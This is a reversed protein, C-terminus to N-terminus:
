FLKQQKVAADDKKTPAPLSRAGVLFNEYLGREKDGPPLVDVISQALRQMRDAGGPPLATALFDALDQREGAAWLNAARHLVDILPALTGTAAPEGLGKVKKRDLPGKLSVKDGKKNLVGKEAVLADFEVGMSQAMHIAEGAEVDATGFAWRWIVYFRSAHDVNGAAEGHVIRQLAYDAVIGRVRDLLEAVTVEDGSLKMVRRFRGFVEVAPGIASMFFDAGRIGQSWFYDLREHLRQELAPEVDDMFGDESGTRKRCVILVSSALAASDQGRLRAGMETDLPWSATVVFGASLLSSIATEWASTAKHAFMVGLIGDDALLSRCRTFSETLLEEFREKTKYSYKPNREALQVAEDRKPTLETAFDDPFIDRLCLRAWVYFFDSLDAYPVADYYPPDTIILDFVGDDALRTASGRLLKAPRSITAAHLIVRRIWDYAGDWSGAAGAFADIESYDWVMGLAQRAFTNAVFEGRSVWRCIASNYDAARGLMLTLYAAMADAYEPDVNSEARMEQNSAAIEEALTVLLLLQRPNFLDRWRRIGYVHVNFISRLYPLEQDPIRAPDAKETAILLKRARAFAADDAPTPARYEKNRGRDSEVVCVIREGFGDTEAVKRLDSGGTIAGCYPCEVKDRSITGNGPDDTSLLTGVQVDFDKSQRDYEFRMVLKASQSLWTQKYIPITGRCAPNRCAITRVWIYAGARKNTDGSYCGALKAEVRLAIRKCWHDLDLALAEGRVLGGITNPSDAFVPAELGGFKQPYLLTCRQILHAIPNLDNSVVDLGLRLGELPIAGGGGFPDLLRLRRKTDNPNVLHRTLSAIATPEAINEWRVANALDAHMASRHAEDLPSPAAAAFIAARSAALPRRAWWIHITSIHGHRISKERASQESIEALPLSDEILRRDTM